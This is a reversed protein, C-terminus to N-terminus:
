WSFRTASKDNSTVWTSRISDDEENFVSASTDLYAGSYIDSPILYM